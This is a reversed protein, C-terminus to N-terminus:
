GQGGGEEPPVPGADEPAMLESVRQARETGEEASQREKDIAESVGPADEDLTGSQVAFQTVTQPGPDGTATVRGLHDRAEDAM